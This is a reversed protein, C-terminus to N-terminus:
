FTVRPNVSQVGPDPGPGVSPLSNPLVKGKGQVKRMGSEDNGSSKM